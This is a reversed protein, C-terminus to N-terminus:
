QGATVVLSGDCQFSIPYVARSHGDQVLVCRGGAELDWLRWTCDWSTSGVFRGSPHVALRNVKDTHGELTASLSADAIADAPVKWLRVTNDYGSSVLRTPGGPPLWQVCTARERHASLSVLPASRGSTADWVRLLGSWSTTALLPSAGAAAAYPDLATWALPRDDGVQECM